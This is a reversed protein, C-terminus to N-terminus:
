WGIIHRLANVAAGGLILVISVCAIAAGAWLWGKNNLVFMGIVGITVGAMIPLLLLLMTNNEM